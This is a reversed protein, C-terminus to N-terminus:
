GPGRRQSELFTIRSEHNGLAAVIARKLDEDAQARRGSARVARWLVGLAGLVGAVLYAANLASM